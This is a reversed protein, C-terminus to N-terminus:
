THVSRQVCLPTNRRTATFSSIGAFPSKKDGGSNAESGFERAFFSPLIILLSRYNLARVICCVFSVIFHVATGGHVACM